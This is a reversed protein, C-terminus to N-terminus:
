RCVIVITTVTMASSQSGDRKKKLNGPSSLTRAPSVLAAARSVCYEMANLLFLAVRLYGERSKFDIILVAATNRIFVIKYPM